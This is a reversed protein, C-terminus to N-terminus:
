KSAGKLKDLDAVDFRRHGGPTRFSAVLGQKEWNRLTTVHVGLREAAHGSDLYTTEAHKSTM